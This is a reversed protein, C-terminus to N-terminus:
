GLAKALRLWLQQDFDKDIAAQGTRVVVLERSPVVYLRRDMAGLAAVLDAPAAPILQGPTRVGGARITEVGGNLWWLRGYAPNTASRVFLASLAEKSVVRRGDRALGGDLVLQGFIAIDRPTTVLGTANGPVVLAAPRQRWATNTMGAPKTLWDHTIKELPAKAVAALVRKTVAYVPTNYFFRDGAPAVYGFAENLGSSMTLLHIVRIAQEQESSAKSWGSGIYDSVPREVDLLGKDIAIAALVAVFSKQQSAVDELLAGDPAPGYTFALRFNAADVPLPWNREVLIRRNQVILFGTTKQGQVYDLVPQLDPTATDALVPTAALAGAGALWRRRSIAFTM